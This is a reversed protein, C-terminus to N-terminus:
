AKRVSFIERQEYNAKFIASDLVTSGRVVQISSSQAVNIPNTSCLLLGSFLITVEACLDQGDVKLNLDEDTIDFGSGRVTVLTGASSGVSPTFEDIVM